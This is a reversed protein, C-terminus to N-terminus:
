KKDDEKENICKKKPKEEKKEEQEEKEPEKTKIRFTSWDATEETDEDVLDPHPEEVVPEKALRVREKEEEVLQKMRESLKVYGNAIADDMDLIILASEEMLEQMEKESNAYYDAIKAYNFVIHRSAAFKLFNKEEDSVSSKNIRAVLKSYKTIDYISKLDPKENNPEYQPVRIARSYTTDNGMPNFKANEDDVLQKMVKRAKKTSIFM